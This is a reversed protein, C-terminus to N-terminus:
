HRMATIEAMNPPMIRIGPAPGHVCQQNEATEKHCGKTTGDEAEHQCLHNVLHAFLAAVVPFPRESSRLSLHRRLHERFPVASQGLYEVQFCLFFRRLLGLLPCLSVQRRCLSGQSLSLLLPVQILSLERGQSGSKGLGL